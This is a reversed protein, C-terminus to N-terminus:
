KTEYQHKSIELANLEEDSMQFLIKALTRYEVMPKLYDIILYQIFPHYRKRSKPYQNWFRKNQDYQYNTVLECVGDFTQNPLKGNTLELFHERIKERFKKKSELQHEPSLLNM